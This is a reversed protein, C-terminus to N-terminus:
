SKRFVVEWFCTRRPIAEPFYRKWPLCWFCYMTMFMGSLVLLIYNKYHYRINVLLVRYFHRSYHGPFALRRKRELKEQREREKRERDEKRMQDRQSLYTDFLVDLLSFLPIIYTWLMPVLGFFIAGAVIYIFQIWHVVKRYGDMGLKFFGTVSYLISCVASILQLLGFFAFVYVMPDEPTIEGAIGIQWLFLVLSKKEGDLEIWPLFVTMGLILHLVMSIRTFIKQKRDREEM